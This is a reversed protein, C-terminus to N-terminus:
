LYSLLFVWRTRAVKKLLRSISVKKNPLCKLLKWGTSVLILIISKLDYQFQGFQKSFLYFFKTTFLIIKSLEPFEFIRQLRFFWPWDVWDRSSKNLYSQDFDILKSNIQFSGRSIQTLKRILAFGRELFPEFHHCRYFTFKQSWSARGSVTRDRVLAPGATQWMYCPWLFNTM